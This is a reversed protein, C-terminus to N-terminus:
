TPPRKCVMHTAPVNEAYLLTEHRQFGWREWFPESDQVAVLALCPFGRSEALKFLATVLQGAVGRGRHSKAVALDHIYLCDADDPLHTRPHDLPVIRDSVWPHSFVYSGMSGDDFYGLCGDPFVGLIRIFTDGAELLEERYADKQVRLVEAIDDPRLNRVTM